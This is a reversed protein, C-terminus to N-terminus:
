VIGRGSANELFELYKATYKTKEMKRLEEIAQSLNLKSRYILKFIKKIELRDEPTFGRRKLGVLNLGHVESPNGVVLLYPPVDQSIRTMGGIMVHDGIHVFQHIGALGGVTVFDGLVVHGALPVCNAIVANNGVICNHGVHSYAMLLVDNGVRTVEGEGVARNITVCERVSTRDGIIVSTEEGRYKLDQPAAGISAGPYINCERGITTHGDIVAHPAIKTGDGITVFEGVVAFPGIEVDNGIRANPHIVAMEHIKSTM